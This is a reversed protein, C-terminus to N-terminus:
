VDQKRAFPQRCCLCVSPFYSYPFCIHRGPTEYLVRSASHDPDTKQLAIGHESALPYRATFSFLSLLSHNQHVAGLFTTIGSNLGACDLATTDIPASHALVRGGAACNERTRELERIQAVMDPRNRLDQCCMSSLPM